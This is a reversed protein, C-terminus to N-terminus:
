ADAKWRDSRCSYKKRGCNDGEASWIRGKRGEQRGAKRGGEVAEGCVVMEKRVGDGASWVWEARRGAM